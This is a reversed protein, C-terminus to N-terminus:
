LRVRGISLGSANKLFLLDPTKLRLDPRRGRHKRHKEPNERHLNKFEKNSKTNKM